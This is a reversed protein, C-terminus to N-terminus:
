NDYKRFGKSLQSLTKMQQGFRRCPRCILIHLQLSSQEKLVLQRDQKESLLQTAQRCTLM